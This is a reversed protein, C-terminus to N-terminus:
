ANALVTAADNVSALSPTPRLGQGSILILEAIVNDTKHM